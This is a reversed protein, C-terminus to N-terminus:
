FLIRTQIPLVLFSFKLLKAYIRFLWLEGSELMAQPFNQLLSEPYFLNKFDYDSLTMNFYEKLRAVVRVVKNNSTCESFLSEPDDFCFKFGLLFTLMLPDASEIDILNYYLKDVSEYFYACAIILSFITTKETIEEPIKGNYNYSLRQLRRFAKKFGCIGDAEILKIFKRFSEIYERTTISYKTLGFPRVKIIRDSYDVRILIDVIAEFSARDRLATSVKVFYQLGIIDQIIVTFQYFIKFTKDDRTALCDCLMDNEFTSYRVARWVKIFLYTLKLNSIECIAQLTEKHTYTIYDKIQQYDKM